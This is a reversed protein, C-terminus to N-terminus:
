RMVHLGSSIAMEQPHEPHTTIRVRVDHFGLSQKCLMHHWPQPMDISRGSCVLLFRM